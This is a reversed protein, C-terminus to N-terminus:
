IDVDILSYGVFKKKVGAETLGCVFNNIEETCWDDEDPVLAKLKKEYFYISCVNKIGGRLSTREYKYTFEIYKLDYIKTKQLRCYNKHILTLSSNAIDLHIEYLRFTLFNFVLFLLIVSILIMVSTLDAIKFFLFITTALLIAFGLTFYIETKLEAKYIKM